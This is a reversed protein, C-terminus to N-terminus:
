VDVGERELLDRIRDLEDLQQRASTQNGNKLFFRAARRHTAYWYELNRREDASTESQGLDTM